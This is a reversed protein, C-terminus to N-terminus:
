LVLPITSLTYLTGKYVDSPLPEARASELTYSKDANIGHLNLEGEDDARFAIDDGCAHPPELYFHARWHVSKYAAGAHFVDGRLLVADGLGRRGISSADVVRGAVGM